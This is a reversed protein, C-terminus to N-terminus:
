WDPFQRHPNPVRASIGPRKRFQPLMRSQATCAFDHYAGTSNQALQRAAERGHPKINCFTSTQVAEM